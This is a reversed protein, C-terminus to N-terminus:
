QKPLKALVAQVKDRNGKIKAAVKNASEIAADRLEEDGAAEVAVKLTGMGPYRELVELVLKKDEARTATKLAMRCMKVRDGGPMSFQRALRIYGRIGRIGYKSDGEEQALKLLVDAATTDLWQGLARTAYERRLDDDSSANEAVVALAEAGSVQRLEEMVVSTADESAGKLYGALKAVTAKRDPMRYCAAHLAKAVAEREEASKSDLRKGIIDLQDLSVTDGLAAILNVDGSEGLMKVFLPVAESIRRKGAVKIAIARRDEDDIMKLLVQNVEDGQLDILTAMAANSVAESEEAAADLLLQLQSIGGLKALAELAAVRPQEAKSQAAAVITEISSASGVDGLLTILLAAKAPKADKLVETAVRSAIKADILRATRLGMNLEATDESSLMKNLLEAGLAGSLEITQLMAANRVYEAADKQQVVKRLLNLAAAKDGQEALQKSGRLVAPAFEASMKETLIKGAKDTGLRAICHAAAKAVERDSDDLKQAIASITEPKERNGLSQIVGILYRGKYKDLGALLVEDVRDSPIPELGYRAYHALTEDDLLGALVPVAAETGVVALRKCAATKDQYSADSSKLTALLEAETEEAQSSVNILSLLCLSAAIHRRKFFM